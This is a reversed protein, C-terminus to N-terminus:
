SKEKTDSSAPAVVGAMIANVFVTNGCNGCTVPIVPVVAGGLVMAGERFATLQFVQEQVNWSAEGCM